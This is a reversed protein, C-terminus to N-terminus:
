LYHKPEFKTSSYKGCKKMAHVCKDAGVNRYLSEVSLYTYANEIYHYDSASVHAFSRIM